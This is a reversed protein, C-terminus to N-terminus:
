KEDGKESAEAVGSRGKKKFYSKAYPPSLKSDRDGRIGEGM